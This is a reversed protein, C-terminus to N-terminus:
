SPLTLKFGIKRVTQILTPEKPNDIKRRLRGVHVDVLNTGPDFRYHWVEEFLMARTVPQGAHRMLFELLRYERPALELHRDGRMATRTSFDLVLDGVELKQTMANPSRRALAEVRASLELPIFPKTLYDDGGAKLGRIREDVDNLASVLLIPTLVAEDRLKELLTLGDMGPLMRDLTIVDHLTRRALELGELGDAVRDVLFGSAKLEEEIESATEDDDEIVLVRIL